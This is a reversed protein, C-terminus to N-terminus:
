EEQHQRATNWGSQWGDQVIIALEVDRVRPRDLREGRSDWGEQWGNQHARAIADLYENRSEDLYDKEVKKMRRIERESLVIIAALFVAIMIGVIM